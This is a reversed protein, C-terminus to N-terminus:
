TRIRLKLDFNRVVRVTGNESGCSLHSDTSAITRLFRNIQTERLPHPRLDLSPPRDPHLISCSPPNFIASAGGKAIFEPLSTTTATETSLKHDLFQLMYDLRKTTTSSPVVNNLSTSSSSSTTSSPSSSYRDFFRPADNDDDNLDILPPLPDMEMKLKTKKKKIFKHTQTRPDSNTNKNLVCKSRM